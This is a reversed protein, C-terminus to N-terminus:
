EICKMAIETVVKSFEEKENGNKDKMASSTKVMDFYEKLLKLTRRQVYWDKGLLEQFIRNQEATAVYEAYLERYIRNKNMSVDGMHIYAYKEEFMNELRNIQEMRRLKKTTSEGAVNRYEILMIVVSFAALYKIHRCYATTRNVDRNGERIGEGLTQLKEFIEDLEKLIAEAEEEPVAEKRSYFIEALCSARDLYPEVEEFKEMTRRFSTDGLFKMVFIEYLAVAMVFRCYSEKQVMDNQEKAAAKCLYINLQGHAVNWLTHLLLEPIGSKRLATDDMCENLFEVHFVYGDSDGKRFYNEYECYDRSSDNLGLVENCFFEKLAEMGLRKGYKTVVLEPVVGKLFYLLGKYTPAEKTKYEVIKYEDIIQMLAFYNGRAKEYEQTEM